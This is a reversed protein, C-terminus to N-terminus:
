MDKAYPRKPRRITADTVARQTARKNTHHLTLSTEHYALLTDATLWMSTRDAKTILADVWEALIRIDRETITLPFLVLGCEINMVSSLVGGDFVALTSYLHVPMYGPQFESSPRPPSGEAKAYSSGHFLFPTRQDRANAVTVGQATDGAVLVLFCTKRMTYQAGGGQTRRRHEFEHLDRVHLSCPLIKTVTFSPCFHCFQFTGEGAYPKPPHRKYVACM